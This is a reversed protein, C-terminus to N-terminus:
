VHSGPTGFECGSLMCTFLVPTLCFCSGMGPTHMEMATCIPCLWSNRAILCHGLRYLCLCSIVTKGVLSGFALNLTQRPPAVHLRDQQQCAKHKNATYCRRVHLGAVCSCSWRKISCSRAPIYSWASKYTMVLRTLQTPNMSEWLTIHHLSRTTSIAERTSSM